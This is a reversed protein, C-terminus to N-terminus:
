TAGTDGTGGKLHGRALRLRPAMEGDAGVEETIWHSGSSNLTLPVAQGLLVRFIGNTVTVSGHTETWLPGGGTEKDYVRFTISFVGNLPFGNTDTLRGQFNMVDDDAIVTATVLVFLLAMSFVPLLHHRM